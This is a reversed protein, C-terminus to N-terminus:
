GKNRRMMEIEPEVIQAKERERPHAKEHSKKMDVGAVRTYIQTIEVGSHGLLKSVVSIDAGNRVLQTACTHRLDHPRLKVGAKKGMLSVMSAIAPGFLPTGRNALFLIQSDPGMKAAHKSSKPTRLKLRVRGLYEKLFKVSVEGLPVVRDKAGKGGNVRLLGGELDVDLLNLRVLEGLRIGTSYFVELIARDRIGLPATLNPQDLVREVQEQTLVGRPLRSERKPEKLFEAPNVLIKQTEELWEFLRKVSRIKMCKTGWGYPRGKQTQGELVKAEYARLIERGVRRIDLVGQGGLFELFVRLNGSYAERTAESYRRVEMQKGFEGRLRLFGDEM